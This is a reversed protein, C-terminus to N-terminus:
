HHCCVIWNTKKRHLHTLWEADPWSASHTKHANFPPPPLTFLVLPSPLSAPYFGFPGCTRCYNWCSAAQDQHRVLLALRRLSISSYFVFGVPAVPQPGIPLSRTIVTYAMSFPVLSPSLNPQWPHARAPQLSPSFLPHPRTSKNQM